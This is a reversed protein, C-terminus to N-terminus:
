KPMNFHRLCECRKVRSRDATPSRSFTSRLRLSPPFPATACRRRRAASPLRVSKRGIWQREHRARPNAFRLTAIQVNTVAAECIIPM